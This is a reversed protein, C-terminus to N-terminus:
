CDIPSRKELLDAMSNFVNNGADRVQEIPFLLMQRHLSLSHKFDSNRVGSQTFHGALWGHGDFYRYAKIKNLYLHNLIRPVSFTATERVLVSFYPTFIEAEPPPEPIMFESPYRAFFGQYEKHARIIASPSNTSSECARQCEDLGQMTPWPRRGLTQILPDDHRHDLVRIEDGYGTKLLEAFLTGFSAERALVLGWAHPDALSPMLGCASVDGFCGLPREQYKDAVSNNLEILWLGQSRCLQAIRDIPACSGALHALLVARTREGLASKLREENMNFTRPDVDIFVPVLGYSKLVGAVGPYNFPTTIIEDGPKLRGALSPATLSTIAVWLSSIFSDSIALPEQRRFWGQWCAAVKQRLALHESIVDAPARKNSAIGMDRIYLQVAEESDGLYSAGGNKLYLTTPCLERIIDLNHSVFIITKGQARLDLFSRKCKSQFAQDGVALMEDVLIIDLDAHIATSFPLRAALGTSLENYKAYLYDKLGSFAIIGDLNKKFAAPRIGLLAACLSFNELVTLEPQLGASLQFFPSTRGYARVQGESPSLIQAILLLLTSKGAGNAGIVGLIEGRRLEFNIEQLAWLIKQPSTGRVWRNLRGLLTPHRNEAGILFSKGLNEVQVAIGSNKPSHM